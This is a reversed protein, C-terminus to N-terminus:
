SHAKAHGKEKQAIKKKLSMLGQILAEPRPPCGPVYVDVPLIEDVGPIVLEEEQQTFLSGTIACSGMAIVYKPNLMENYIKLIDGKLAYTAPGALILLDANKPELQPISGFRSWDYRPGMCMMFETSCCSLGMTYTWISFERAMSFIKWSSSDQNVLEGTM